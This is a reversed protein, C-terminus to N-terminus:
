PHNTASANAYALWLWRLIFVCHSGQEDRLAKVLIATSAVLGSGCTGLGFNIPAHFMGPVRMTPLANCCEPAEHMHERVRPHSGAIFYLPKVFHALM